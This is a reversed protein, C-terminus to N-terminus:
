LENVPFRKIECKDLISKTCSGQGDLGSCKGCYIIFKEKLFDSEKIQDRLVLQLYAETITKRIFRELEKYTYKYLSGCVICKYVLYKNIIDDVRDHINMANVDTTLAYDEGTAGADFSLQGGCSLCKISDALVNFM